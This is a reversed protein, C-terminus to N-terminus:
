RNIRVVTPERSDGELSVLVASTEPHATCYEEVYCRGRLYFATSLAEANVPDATIVTASALESKAPTGSIPDIIHEFDEDVAEDRQAIGGSTSIAADLLEVVDVREDYNSPHRIGVRWPIGDIQRGIAAASSRGGHVFGSQVEYRRILEIARGVAYGKGIAGLNLKVGDIDFRITGSTEDLKIHQSGSMALANKIEEENLRKGNLEANQWLDILSGTAVDFAGCTESTLQIARSLLGFLGPEIKIPKNFGNANIYSIESRPDFCNLQRDLREIEDLAEEAVSRLYGADEGVLRVEFQCAMARRSLRVEVPKAM